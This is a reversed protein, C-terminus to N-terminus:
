PRRDWASSASSAEKGKEGAMLASAAWRRPRVGKSSEVPSWRRCCAASSARRRCDAASACAPTVNAGAM